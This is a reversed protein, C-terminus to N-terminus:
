LHKLRGRQMQLAQLQRWGDSSRRLLWVCMKVLPFVLLPQQEVEMNKTDLGVYYCHVPPRHMSSWRSSYIISQTQRHAASVGRVDPGSTVVNVCANSRHASTWAPWRLVLCLLLHFITKMSVCFLCWYYFSVCVSKNGTLPCPCARCTRNAANGYHGEKCRECRDGVTNSQCNQLDTLHFM